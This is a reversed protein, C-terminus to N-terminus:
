TMPAKFDFHMFDRSNKWYGGWEFGAREMAQVLEIPLTLFGETSFPLLDAYAPVFKSSLPYEDPNFLEPPPFQAVFDRSAQWMTVHDSATGVKWVERELLDNVALMEKTKFHPNTPYQFDVARGTSHNSLTSTGAIMRACFGGMFDFSTGALDDSVQKLKDRLDKHVCIPKNNTLPLRVVVLNERAWAILNDIGYGGQSKPRAYYEDLWIYQVVRGPFTRQADQHQTLAAETNSAPTQWEQKLAAVNANPEIYVSFAPFHTAAEAARGFAGYEFRLVKRKNKKRPAFRAGGAHFITALIRKPDAQALDHEALLAGNGDVDLTDWETKQAVLLEAALKINSKPFRLLNFVKRKLDNGLAKYADKLKQRTVSGQGPLMGLELAAIEPAIRCVGRAQKESYLAQESGGKLAVLQGPSKPGPHLPEAKPWHQEKGSALSAYIVAALFRASLESASAATTIYPLLDYLVRRACAPEGVPTQREDGILQLCEFDPDTDIVEQTLALTEISPTQATAGPPRLAVQVTYNGATTPTWAVRGEDTTLTLTGAPGAITWDYKDVNLEGPVFVVYAHARVNPFHRRESTARLPATHESILQCVSGSAVEGLDQAQVNEGFARETVSVAM